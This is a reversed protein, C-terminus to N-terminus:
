LLESNLELFHPSWTARRDRRECHRFFTRQIFCCHMLLHLSTVTEEVPREEPVIPVQYISGRIKKRRKLEVM